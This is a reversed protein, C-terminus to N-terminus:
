GRISPYDMLLMCTELFISSLIRLSNMFSLFYVRFQLPDEDLKFMIVKSKYAAKLLKTTLKVCEKILDGLCTKSM